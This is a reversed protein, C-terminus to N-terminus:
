KLAIASLCEDTRQAEEATGGKFNELADKADQRSRYFANGAEDTVPRRKAIKELAARLNSTADEAVAAVQRKLWARQKPDPIHLQGVIYDGWEETTM